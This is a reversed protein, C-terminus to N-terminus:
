IDEDPKVPVIARAGVAPLTVGTQLARLTELLSVTLLVSVDTHLEARQADNLAFDDDLKLSDRAPMVAFSLPTGARTQVRSYAKSILELTHADLVDIEYNAWIMPRNDENKMLALGPMGPMKYELDPRVVIFADVGDNPVAVLYKRLAVRSDDWAGNPISALAGRDYAVDKFTFRAGLYQHLSSNVQDDIRWDAIDLAGTKTGLFHQNNLTLTAGIASIVAVTHFREYAGTVAAPVQPPAQPVYMPVYVFGGGHAEAPLGPPLTLLAALCLGSITRKMTARMKKAAPLRRM